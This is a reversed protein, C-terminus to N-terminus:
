GHTRWEHREAERVISGDDGVFIPCTGVLFFQYDKTVLYRESQYSFLWGNEIKKTAVDAIMLKDGEPPPITDAVYREALSRAEAMQIQKTM